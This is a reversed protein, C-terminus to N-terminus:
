QYRAPAAATKAKKKRAFALANPFFFLCFQRDAGHKAYEIDDLYWIRISLVVSPKACFMIIDSGKTRKKAFKHKQFNIEFYKIRKKEFHVYYM